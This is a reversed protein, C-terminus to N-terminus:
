QYMDGCTRGQKRSHREDRRRAGGRRREARVAAASAFSVALHSLYYSAHMHAHMYTDRCTYVGQTHTNSVETKGKRRYEAEGREEGREERLKHRSDKGGFAGGGM